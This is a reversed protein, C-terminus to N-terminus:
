RHDRGREDQSRPSSFSGITQLPESTTTRHTELIPALAERLDEIQHYHVATM